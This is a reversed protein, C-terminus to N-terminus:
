KNENWPNCVTKTNSSIAPTTVRERKCWTLQLRLNNKFKAKRIKKQFIVENWGEFFLFDFLCESLLQSNSAIEIERLNNIDLSIYNIIM